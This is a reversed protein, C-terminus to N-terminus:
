RLNAFIANAIAASKPWKGFGPSDGNRIDIIVGGKQVAIELGVGMARDGLGPIPAMGSGQDGRVTALTDLWAADTANRTLTISLPNGDSGVWQCISYFPTPATYTAREISSLQAPSIYSCDTAASATGVSSVGAPGPGAGADGSAVAPAGAATEPSTAGRGCASLISAAAIMAVMVSRNFNM